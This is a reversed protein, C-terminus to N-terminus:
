YQHGFSCVKERHFQAMESVEPNLPGGPVWILLSKMASGRVMTDEGEPRM